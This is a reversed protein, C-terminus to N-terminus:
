VAAGRRAGLRRRVVGLAFDLDAPSAWRDVLAYLALYVLGGAALAVLLVGELPWMVLGMAAGAALPAALTQLANVGGVERVALTAAAALYATEAILMALAAGEAGLPPILALNLAVNLAGAAAVIVLMRMPDQRSVILSGCLVVVGFMVVVAALYRLPEAASALDDGFLTRCLPEALVGFTVGFPILTILAFKVSRQFISRITPATDPGLYTYMASFAGSLSAGIFATADLLRYAAGYVGVTASTALLSLLLV